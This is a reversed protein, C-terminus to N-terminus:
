RCLLIPHTSPLPDHDTLRSSRWLCHLHRHQFVDNHKPSPITSIWNSHCEFSKDDYNRCYFSTVFECGIMLVGFRVFFSVTGRTYTSGRLSKEDVSGTSTLWADFEEAQVRKKRRWYFIVGALILLLVLAGGIGGAIVGMNSTAPAPTATGSLSNLTSTPICQSMACQTCSQSIIQCEQGSPCVPCAPPNAPCPVCNSQRAELLQNAREDLDVFIDIVNLKSLQSAYRSRPCHFYHEHYFPDM